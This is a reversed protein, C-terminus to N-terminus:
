LKFSLYKDYNRELVGRDVHVMAVRAIHAETVHGQVRDVTAVMAEVVRQLAVAAALYIRVREVEVQVQHLGLVISGGGDKADIGGGSSSGDIGTDM